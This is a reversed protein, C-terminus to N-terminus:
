DITFGDYEIWEEEDQWIHPIVELEEAEPDLTLEFFNYQTATDSLYWREDPHDAERLPAGWGGDGIYPIGGEAKVDYFEPLQEWVEDYLSTGAVESYLSYYDVEDDEQILYLSSFYLLEELGEMVNDIDEIEEYDGASLDGMEPITWPTYDEEPDFDERAREMGSEIMEDLDEKYESIGYINETVKYTHDHAEKVIEVDYEEFLPVWHDRVRRSISGHFSRQSPWAPVHYQPIVWRDELEPLTRELWRLQEGGYVSSTHDSDLTLVTLDPGYDLRYYKENGPLLLNKYYFPAEARGEYYGGAVEHNGIAPVLPIRRGDETIMLEDWDRFFREWDSNSLPSDILDGAFVVFEPDLEAARRNIERREEVNTRSDAGALFAIERSDEPATRFTFEKSEEQETRLYAKYETDPELDRLETGHVWYDTEEFTWTKAHESKFDDDSPNEASTFYVMSDGESRTRWTMSMTETPDDQWTLVIQQPELDDEAMIAMVPQSLTLSVALILAFILAARKNLKM